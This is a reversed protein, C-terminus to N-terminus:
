DIKRYARTGGDEISGIYTWRDDRAFETGVTRKEAGQILALNACVLVGGPKLLARLDGVLGPTPSLGDFFALDYDGDLGAIVASFEGQHVTVRDELNASRVNERALSVHLDDREVTDVTTSPTALALICATYGVATGLELIREPLEATALTLLGPGDAFTYADCGHSRRHRQTELHLYEFRAASATTM